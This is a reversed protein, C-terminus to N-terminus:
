KLLRRQKQWRGPEWYHGRQNSQWNGPVFVRGRTPREWYGEHRVYSHSHRSWVWDGEVWIHLNSPQVPRVNETYTPEVVVYGPVCANFLIGIGIFCAFYFIKNIYNVLRVKTINETTNLLTKELVVDQIDKNVYKILKM